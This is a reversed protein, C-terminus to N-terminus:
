FFANLMQVPRLNPDLYHLFISHNSVTEYCQEPTRLRHCFFLEGVSFFEVNLFIFKLFGRINTVFSSPISAGPMLNSSSIAREKESSTQTIAGLLSRLPALWEIDRVFGIRALCHPVFLNSTSPVGVSQTSIAKHFKM